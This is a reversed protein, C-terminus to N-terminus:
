PTMQHIVHDVLSDADRVEGDQKKMQAIPVILLLADNMTHQVFKAM